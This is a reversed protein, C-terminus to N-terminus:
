KLLYKYLRKLWSKDERVAEDMSIANVQAYAVCELARALIAVARSLERVERSTAEAALREAIRAAEDANQAGEFAKIHARGRALSLLANLQM